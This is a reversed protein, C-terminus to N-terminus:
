LDNLTLIPYFFYAPQEYPHEKVLTKVVDKINEELCIMEVKYESLQELQNLQGIHPRSGPMARFQGRGKVEWCCHEYRNIKGAGCSFLAQKLHEHHSEPVYYILSYM